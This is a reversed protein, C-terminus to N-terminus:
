DGFLGNFNYQRGGVGRIRTVNSHNVEHKNSHVQVYEIGTTDHFIVANFQTVPNGGFICSHFGAQTQEDPLKVPPMNDQNYVSGVILPRDPDGQEFAVVVEHGIRPWFFAGWGNGAWVQAVRIWCSDDGPSDQNSDWRFRVKVRGYPDVWIEQGPPGVVVATQVGDIRPRPTRRAPRYPLAAPLCEFRNEYLLEGPGEGTVYTGSLSATTEVRTLLYSGDADFHNRLTFRRGAAFHCGDAHGSAKLSAAATEEMRLRAIREREQFLGQLQQKQDQGNRGIGEFDHAFGASYDLTKLFDPGPRQLNLRHEVQGANVTAMVDREAQLNSQPMQFSYDRVIHKVPRLEQAKKWDLVRPESRLGGASEDYAIPKALADYSAGDDALVVRVGDATDQFWCAIGEEEMLRSVFAYDTEQYQVCFNRKPYTGTLRRSVALQWEDHLIRQLLDPVTVHQFVRSQWRQTLLWMQPVLEAEYRIFTVSGAQFRRGQTLQSIVGRILRETGNPQQLTVKVVQGLLQGFDIAEEALMELQFSFLSSVAESGAIKILLLVDKGLPTEIALPRGAQTSRGM